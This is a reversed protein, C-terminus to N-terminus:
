PGTVEVTATLYFIGSAIVTTGGDDSIEILVQSSATGVSTQSISYTRDSTLALWSGAGSGIVGSVATFKVHYDDGVATTTPTYWNSRTTYTAGIGTRILGNTTCRISVTADAPDTVTDFVGCSQLALPVPGVGVGDNGQKAKSISYALDITAGGFVARFVASGTDASMSNVTYVGSSNISVDVGTESQVSFTVSGSSVLTTNRYVKMTGGAGTFSTVVGAATADVVAAPKTLEARISAAPPGAIQHVLQPCWQGRALANRARARFLYTYGAKLGPIVTETADGDEPWNPWDGAPDSGADLYQIDIKGGETVGANQVANWSIKTRTLISGDVLSSTGSEVALGTILPVFSPDPLNTNDDNGLDDFGADPDYITANTEKLTLNIGGTPSWSWALVEFTKASWGFEELTVSVVDFLELPFAKLNCPLVVTLGQRSERLLVGCVHNARYSAQVAQMEIERALEIGDATVYTSAILPVAQSVIYDNHKDAITARYTNVADTIAPEPVIQIESAGSLWTDDINAVSPRWAGAVVRLKGGSWGYRGAMAECIEDLYPTPSGELKCVIGGEYIPGTVDYAASGDTPTVEWTNSVDCANAAAIFSADDIEATTLRGGYKYLCWDRAHLAPNASYATTATRPDYIKAGDVVATISPVGSPFADQSYRLDVILCADGAFRDDITVEPFDGSLLSHLDQSSGGLYKRVRAYSTANSHQYHILAGGAVGGSVTVVSGSVSVTLPDSSSSGYQVCSVTGAIPPFDLTASGNGSGDLTLSKSASTKAASSKYPEDQVYGSGDLTVKVDNFYIDGIAQVQHGAVSIVFTYYESKSGHTGKFIIGDVNRCRGYVRSRAGDAVSVMVYRDKLSANFAARANREAKKRQYSSYAFSGLTTLVAGYTAAFVVVNAIITAATSGVVSSLAVVITIPDAKAPKCALLLALALLWRM